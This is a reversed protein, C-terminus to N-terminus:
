LALKWHDLGKVGFGEGSACLWLSLPCCRGESGGWRGAMLLRPSGAGELYQSQDLYLWISSIDCLLMSMALSQKRDSARSAEGALVTVTRDGSVRGVKSLLLRSLRDESIGLPCIETLAPSPPLSLLLPVPTLPGVKEGVGM